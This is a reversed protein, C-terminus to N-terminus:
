VAAAATTARFARRLFAALRHLFEHGIGARFNGFDEVLFLERFEVRGVLAPPVTEASALATRPRVSVAFASRMWRAAIPIARVSVARGWRVTIPKRGVSVSARGWGSM